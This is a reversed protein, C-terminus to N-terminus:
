FHVGLWKAIYWKRKFLLQTAEEDNSSGRKTANFANLLNLFHDNMKWEIRPELPTDPWIELRVNPYLTFMYRYLILYHGTKLAYVCM